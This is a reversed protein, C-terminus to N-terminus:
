RKGSASLGALRGSSFAWQLNYGGCRGDVDLSEGVIYLGPIDKVMLNEDLESLMVGGACVQAAEFGNTDEVTLRLGKLLDAVKDKAQKNILCAESAAKIGALKMVQLMVKKNTIGLFYEEASQLTNRVSRYEILQKLEDKPMDPLFDLSVEVKSGKLLEYAAIRSLQFTPIGSVGYDTLQIEGSEKAIKKGDSFLTITGDFRVGSLAKLIGDTCRLQVLAPVVPAMPLNLGKFLRYHEESNKAKTGAVSGIAIIVKDFEFNKKKGDINAEVVFGKDAKKVAKVPSDTLVNVGIYALENRLCDLVTSAQGSYPYYGGRKITSFMGLSCFFAVLKESDFRKIVNMIFKKDSGNYCDKDLVENTFNCKGNGTVLLKKGVRDNAEFLTVKSSKDHAAIAAMMGSAGGGIVAIKKM